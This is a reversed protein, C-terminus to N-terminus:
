DFVSMLCGHANQVLMDGHDTSSWLTIAHMEGNEDFLDSYKFNDSNDDVNALNDFEDFLTLLNFTDLESVNPILDGRESSIDEFRCDLNKKPPERFQNSTLILKILDGHKSVLEFHKGNRQSVYVGKNLNGFSNDLM